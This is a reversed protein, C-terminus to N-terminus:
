WVFDIEKQIVSYIEKFKISEADLIRDGDTVEIHAYQMM